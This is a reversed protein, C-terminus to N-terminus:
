LNPSTLSNLFEPLPVQHDLSMFFLSLTSCFDIGTVQRAQTTPGIKIATPADASSACDTADAPCEGAIAVTGAAAASAAVVEKSLGANTPFGFFM